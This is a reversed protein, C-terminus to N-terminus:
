LRFVTNVYVITFLLPSGNYGVEERKWFTTGSLGDNPKL